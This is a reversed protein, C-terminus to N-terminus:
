TDYEGTDWPFYFRVDRPHFIAAECGDDYLLGHINGNLEVGFPRIVIDRFQRIHPVMPATMQSLEWQARDGAVRLGISDYGGIRSESRLHSGDSTFLHRVAVWRREEDRLREGTVFAMFLTGDQMEGTFPFRGCDPECPIRVMEPEWPVWDFRSYWDRELLYGVFVEYVQQLTMLERTAHMEEWHPNWWQIRFESAGPARRIAEICNGDAVGLHLFDGFSEEAFVRDLDEVAVPQIRAGIEGHFYM